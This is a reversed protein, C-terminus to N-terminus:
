AVCTCASERVCACVQVIALKHLAADRDVLETGRGQGASEKNVAGGENSKGSESSEVSPGGSAADQEGPGRTDASHMAFGFSRAGRSGDGAGAAHRWLKDRASVSMGQHGAMALGAVLALALVLGLQSPKNQHARSPQGKSAVGQTVQQVQAQGSSSSGRCSTESRPPIGFGASGQWSPAAPLPGSLDEVSLLVDIDKTSARLRAKEQASVGQWEGRQELCLGTATESASMEMWIDDCQKPSFGSHRLYPLVQDFRVELDSAVHSTASLFHLGAQAVAATDSAPNYDDPKPTQPRVGTCVGLPNEILSM